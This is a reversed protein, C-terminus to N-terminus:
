RSGATRRESRTQREVVESWTAPSHAAELVIVDDDQDLYFAVDERQADFEVTGGVFVSGRHLQYLRDSDAHV